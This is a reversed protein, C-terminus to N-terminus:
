LIEFALLGTLFPNAFAALQLLSPNKLLLSSLRHFNYLLSGVASAKLFRNMKIMLLEKTIVGAGNLFYTYNTLMKLSATKFRVKVHGM